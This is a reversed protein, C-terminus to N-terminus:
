KFQFLIPFTFTVIITWIIYLPLFRAISNEVETIDTKKSISSYLRFTVLLLNILMLMNSGLVALRNPTIGWESIRFLIASLAIGNVIVTIISLALLIYTAPQNNKEKSSEAISFLIIAMVGILLLNFVILFDRDNYPDKGSVLIAVLYIALMVLVLPSFIKAIAPSVKNVLQPNTQTLYTGLIPLAPLGFIIIYETYFQEINIGIASFLGMTIVSLMAGAILILGTMIVLEGNYRLYEIRKSYNGPYDGVYTFGLVSWLLLPLHIFSLILTDSKNAAPLLNIFILPILFGVAIFIIQRIALNRKWIFYATLM